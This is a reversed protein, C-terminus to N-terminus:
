LLNGPLFLGSSGRLSHDKKVTERELTEPPSVQNDRITDVIEERQAYAPLNKRQSMMQVRVSLPRLAGPFVAPVCCM